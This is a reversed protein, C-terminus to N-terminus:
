LKQVEQYDQEPHRAEDCTSDNVLVIQVYVSTLGLYLSFQCLHSSETQMPWVATREHVSTKGGMQRTHDSAVHLQQGGQQGRQLSHIRLSQILFVIHTDAKMGGDKIHNWCKTLPESLNEMGSHPGVM